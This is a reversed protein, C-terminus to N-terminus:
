GAKQSRLATYLRWTYIDKFAISDPDGDTIYREVEELIEEKHDSDLTDEHGRKRM